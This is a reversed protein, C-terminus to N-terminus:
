RRVARASCGRPQRAASRKASRESLCFPLAHLVVNQEHVAVRETGFL